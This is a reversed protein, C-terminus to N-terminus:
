VALLDGAGADVAGLVKGGSQSVGAVTGEGGKGGLHAALGQFLVGFLSAQGGFHVDVAEIGGSAAKSGARRVVIYTPRAYPLVLIQHIGTGLQGQHAADGLSATCGCRPQQLRDGAGLPKRHRM